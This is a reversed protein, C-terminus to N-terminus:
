KSFLDLIYKFTDEYKNNNIIIISQYISLYISILLYKRLSVFMRSKCNVISTWYIPCPISSDLGRIWIIKLTGRIQGRSWIWISWILFPKTTHISWNPEMPCTFRSLWDLNNILSMQGVKYGNDNKPNHSATIMIGLCTKLHRVGFAVFPTPIYRDSMYVPCNANLFINATLKGWRFLNSM